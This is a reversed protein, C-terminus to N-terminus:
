FQKKFIFFKQLINFLGGFTLASDGYNDTINVNAGAEILINVIDSYNSYSAYLLATWGAKDQKNIDSNAEILLNM